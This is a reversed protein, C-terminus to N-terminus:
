TLRLNMNELGLCTGDPGVASPLEDFRRFRFEDM